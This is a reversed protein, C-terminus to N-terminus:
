SVKKAQLIERGESSKKGLLIRRRKVLIGSHEILIMLIRGAIGTQANYMKRCIASLEDDATDVISSELVLNKLFTEKSVIGQKSNSLLTPHGM